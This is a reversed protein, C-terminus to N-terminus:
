EGGGYVTDNLTILAERLKGADCQYCADPYGDCVVIEEDEDPEPLCHRLSIKGGEVVKRLKIVEEVLEPLVNCALVIFDAIDEDAVVAIPTTDKIVPLPYIETYDSNDVRVWQGIWNKECMKLLEEVDVM